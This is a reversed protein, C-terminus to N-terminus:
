ANPDIHPVHGRDAEPGEVSVFEIGMTQALDNAWEEVDHQQMRATKVYFSALVDDQNAAVLEEDDYLHANADNVVDAVSTDALKFTAIFYPTAPM